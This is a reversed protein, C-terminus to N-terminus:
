SRASKIFLSRQSAGSVTPWNASCDSGSPWARRQASTWLASKTISFGFTTSLYTPLWIMLGYFGFNQVSCLIFMGLSTKTMRASAFLTWLPLGSRRHGAHAQFIAPEPVLRRMLFAFVAPLVGVLFMGRWGVLPFLVPTVFATLVIGLTGGMGVLSSFRARLHPPCVEAALAMGIGWEGGLGLGAMFRCALLDWYGQTFACLGTFGAFVLITWTMVRVRGLYDALIGFVIGGLVAGLLTMTAIFGAQEKLLHLDLSIAGLVFGLLLNDYTDLAYGVMSAIVSKVANRDTTATTRLPRGPRDITTLDADESANIEEITTM